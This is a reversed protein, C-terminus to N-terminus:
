TWIWYKRSIEIDSLRNMRILMAEVICRFEEEQKTLIRHLRDRNLKWAARKSNSLILHKKRKSSPTTKSTLRNTPSQTRITKTTTSQRTNSLTSLYTATKLTKVLSTPSTITSSTPISPTAKSSDMKWSISNIKKSLNGKSFVAQCCQHNEINIKQWLTRSLPFKKRDITPLSWCKSIPCPTKSMRINRHEITPKFSIWVLFIKSKHFMMQASRLMTKRQSIEVRTLSKQSRWTTRNVMDQLTFWKQHTAWVLSAQYARSSTIQFNPRWKLYRWHNKYLSKLMFHTRFISIRM